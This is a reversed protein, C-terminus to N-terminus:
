IHYITLIPSSILPYFAKLCQTEIQPSVSELRIFDEGGSLGAPVYLPIYSLKEYERIVCLAM